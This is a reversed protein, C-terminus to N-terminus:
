IERQMAEAVTEGPDVKGAPLGWKNGSSKHVHRHLLVFQGEHQIYCGAVDMKKNFDAPATKFIM